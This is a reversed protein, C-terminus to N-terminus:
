FCLYSYTTLAVHCAPTIKLLTQSSDLLDSIKNIPWFKLESTENAEIHTQLDYRQQLENSTM